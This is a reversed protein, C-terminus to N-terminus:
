PCFTWINRLHIECLPTCDRTWCQVFLPFSLAKKNDNLKSGYWYGEGGRERTNALMFKRNEVFTFLSLSLSPLRLRRDRSVPSTTLVGILRCCIIKLCKDYVTAFGWSRWLPNTHFTFKGQYGVFIKRRNSMNLDGYMCPFVLNTHFLIYVYPFNGCTKWLCHQRWSINGEMSLFFYLVVPSYQFYYMYPIEKHNVAYNGQQIKQKGKCVTNTAALQWWVQFWPEHPLSVCVGANCCHQWKGPQRPWRWIVWFLGYLFIIQPSFQHRHFHGHTAIAM